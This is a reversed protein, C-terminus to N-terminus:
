CLYEKIYDIIQNLDKEGEKIGILSDKYKKYNKRELKIKEYLLSNINQINEIDLITCNFKLNYDKIKNQALKSILKSNYQIIPKNLIIADHITSSAQFM